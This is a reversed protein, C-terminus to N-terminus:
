RQELTDNILRAAKSNPATKIALRSWKLAEEKLGLESLSYAYEAMLDADQGGLEFYNKFNKVAEAHNGTQSQREAVSGLTPLSFKNLGAQNPHPVQLQALKYFMVGPAAILLVAFAAWIAFWTFPKKKAPITEYGPFQEEFSKKKM